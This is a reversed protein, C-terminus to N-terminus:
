NITTPCVSTSSIVISVGNSYTCEKEMGSIRRQSVLTGFAFAATSALLIAITAITKM